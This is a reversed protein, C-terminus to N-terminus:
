KGGAWGASKNPTQGLIIIPKGSVSRYTFSWRHGEERFTEQASFSLCYNLSCTKSVSRFHEAKTVKLINMRVRFNSPFGKMWPFHEPPMKARNKRFCFCLLLIDPSARALYFAPPAEWSCQARAEGGRERWMIKEPLCAQPRPSPFVLAEWCLARQSANPFYTLLSRKWSTKSNTICWYKGSDLSKLVFTILKSLPQCRGQTCKADMLISFLDWCMFFSPGTQEPTIRKISM